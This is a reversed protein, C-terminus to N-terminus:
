WGTTLTIEYQDGDAIETADVGTMLDEGDKVFERRTPNM